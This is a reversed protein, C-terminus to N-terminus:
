KYYSVFWNIFHKVGEEFPIKPKFNFDKILDDIDAFTKTLDGPQLPQFKIKAKKGIMVDPLSGWSLAALSPVTQRSLSFGDSAEFRIWSYFRM